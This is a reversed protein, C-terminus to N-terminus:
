SSFRIRSEYYDVLAKPAHQKLEERPVLEYALRIDLQNAYKVIAVMGHGRVEKM